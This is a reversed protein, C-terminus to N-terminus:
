NQGNLALYLRQDPLSYRHQHTRSLHLLLEHRDCEAQLYAAQEELRDRTSVSELWRQKMQLPLCLISALIYSAATPDHPLTFDLIDSKYFNQILDLYKKFLIAVRETRRGANPDEHEALMEVRVTLYPDQQVFEVVRIRREGYLVVGLPEDDQADDDSHAVLAVSALCGTMFPISAYHSHEGQSTLVVGVQWDERVCDRLLTRHPEEIAQMPLFTGPFLVAPLTLLPIEHTDALV